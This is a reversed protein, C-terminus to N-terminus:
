GRMRRRLRRLARPLGDRHWARWTEYHEYERERARFDAGHV